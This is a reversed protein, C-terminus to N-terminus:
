FQLGTTIHKISQFDVKKETKSFVVMLSSSATTVVADASELWLIKSGADKKLSHFLFIDDGSAIEFHLNDLSNYYTEKTFALNAGNCM